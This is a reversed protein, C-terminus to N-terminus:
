KASRKKGQLVYKPDTDNIIRAASYRRIEEWSEVSENNFVPDALVLQGDRSMINGIHLDLRDVSSIPLKYASELLDLIKEPVTGGWTEALMKYANMEKTKPDRVQKVSKIRTTLYDLRNFAETLSTPNEMDQSHVHTLLEMRVYKFKEPFGELRKHFTSIQRIPTYIKPLHPDGSHSRAYDVFSDYAADEVWFKLAEDKTPHKFVWAFNGTGLYTYGSEKEFFSALQDMSMHQYKKVGLLEYLKM